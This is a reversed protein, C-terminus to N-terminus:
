KQFGMRIEDLKRKILHPNLIHSFVIEEKPTGATNIVLEGSGFFIKELFNERVSIDTIKQYDVSILQTSLFRWYFIARKDTLFYFYASRLYFGYGILGLALFITLWFDSIFFLSVFISVILILFGLFIWFGSYTKAVGFEVLVKEDPLIIKEKIERM